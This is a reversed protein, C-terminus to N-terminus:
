SCTNGLVIYKNTKSLNQLTFLLINFNLYVPFSTTPDMLLDVDLGAIIDKDGPSPYLVELVSAEFTALVLGM